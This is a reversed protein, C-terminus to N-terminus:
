IIWTINMFIQHSWKLCFMKQRDDGNAKESFFYCQNM